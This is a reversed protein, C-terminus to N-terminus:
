GHDGGRAPTIKAARLRGSRFEGRRDYGNVDWNNSSNLMSRAERRAQAASCWAPVTVTLLMTVRKRKAM